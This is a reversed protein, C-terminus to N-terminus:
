GDRFFSLDARIREMRTALISIKRNEKGCATFVRWRRVVRLSLIRRRVIRCCDLMLRRDNWMDVAAYLMAISKKRDKESLKKRFRTRGTLIYMFKFSLLEKRRQCSSILSAVKRTECVALHWATIAQVLLCTYYTKSRFFIAASSKKMALRWEDTFLRLLRLHDSTQIQTINRRETVGNVVSKVWLDVFKLCFNRTVIVTQNRINTCRRLLAHLALKKKRRKDQVIITSRLAALSAWRSFARNLSRLAATKTLQSKASKVRLSKSLMTRLFGFLRVGERQMISDDLKRKNFGAEDRAVCKDCRYVRLVSLSLRVLVSERKATARTWAANERLLLPHGIHSWWKWLRRQSRLKELRSAEVALRQNSTRNLCFGYISKLLFKNRFHYEAIQKERRKVNKEHSLTSWARVFLRGKRRRRCTLHDLGFALVAWSRFFSLTSRWTVRRQSWTFRRNIRRAIQARMAWERIVRERMYGDRFTSAFLLNRYFDIMGKFCRFISRARFNETSSKLCEEKHTIRRLAIIVRRQIHVVIVAKAEVTRQKWLLFFRLRKRGFLIQFFFLFIRRLLFFRHMILGRSLLHIQQFTAHLTHKACLARMVSASRVDRIWDRFIVRTRSRLAYRELRKERFAREWSLLSSQTTESTVRAILHACQNRVSLRQAIKLLRLRCSFHQMLERIRSRSQCTVSWCRLLRSVRNGFVRRSRQRELQLLRHTNKWSVFSTVFIHIRINADRDEIVKEYYEREEISDAVAARWAQLLSHKTRSRRSASLLIRVKWHQRSQHAHRAFSRFSLNLLSKSREFALPTAGHSECLEDDGVYVCCATM